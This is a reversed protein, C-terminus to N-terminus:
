ARVGRGQLRINCILNYAKGIERTFVRQPLCCDIETTSAHKLDITYTFMVFIKMIKHPNETSKQPSAEDERNTIMAVLVPVVSSGLNNQTM